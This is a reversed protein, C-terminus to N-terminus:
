PQISPSRNVDTPGQDDDSTKLRIRGIAIYLLSSAALAGAAIWLAQPIGSREAVRALSLGTILLGAQFGLSWGSLMTARESASVGAHLIQQSFPHAFGSIAYIAIFSAAGLRLRRRFRCVSLQSLQSSFCSLPSHWGWLYGPVSFYGSRALVDRLILHDPSSERFM